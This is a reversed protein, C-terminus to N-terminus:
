QNKGFFVLSFHLWVSREFCSSVGLLSAPFVVWSQCLPSMCGRFYERGAAIPEEKGNEQGIKEGGALMRRKEVNVGLEALYVFDIVENEWELLQNIPLHITGIKRFNSLFLPKGIGTGFAEIDDKQELAENQLRNTTSHFM